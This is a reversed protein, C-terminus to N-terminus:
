DEYLIKKLTRLVRHNPMVNPNNRMFVFYDEGFADNVFTGVAGSRSIGAQCHVICHSKNENKIIFDRIERAQTETFAKARHIRDSGIQVDQDEEVDDFYIIKVNSKDAKFYSPDPVDDPEFTGIISILMVDQVEVNEETIGNEAMTNDFIRKPLVTVKM